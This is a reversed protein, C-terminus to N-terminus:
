ILCNLFFNYNFKKFTLVISLFPSIQFLINGLFKSYNVMFCRSLEKWPIDLFATAARVRFYSPLCDSCAGSFLKLFKFITMSYLYQSIFPVLCTQCLWSGDQMIPKLFYRATESSNPGGWLIQVGVGERHLNLVKPTCWPVDHSIVIKFILDSAESAVFVLGVVVTGQSWLYCYKLFWLSVVKQRLGGYSTTPLPWLM